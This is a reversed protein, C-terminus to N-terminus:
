GTVIAPSAYFQRAWARYRGVPGDGEALVPPTIYAKHRWIAFDDQVDAAYTELFLRHLLVRAVRLPLVRYPWVADPCRGPTLMSLGIQLHLQDHEVPVPLVMLRLRIGFTRDDVEVRSYGMGWVHVDIDERISPRLLGPIISRTFGYKVRLNPGDVGLPEHLAVDRYRHVWPFHGIDVCNETVEQPHGRVRWGKMLFSSWGDTEAVPPEWSPANGQAAYRGFLMGHRELVPWVGLVAAKPPRTDYGTAVCAGDHAFRFGHFPCELTEGSVRGGQALHAGLHPCYADNLGARGDADRWLVLDRGGLRRGQVAGPPLDASLGLFYWADPIALVDSYLPETMEVGRSAEYDPARATVPWCLHIQACGGGSISSM